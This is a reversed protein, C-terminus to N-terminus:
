RARRCRVMAVCCLLGLAVLLSGPEPIVGDVQVNDVWYLFTSNASSGGQFFQIYKLDAVDALGSALTVPGLDNTDNTFQISLDSIGAADLDAVVEVANWEDRTYGTTADSVTVLSDTSQNRYRTDYTGSNRSFYLLFAESDSSDFGRLGLSHPQSSRPVWLDLNVTAEGIIASTPNGAVDFENYFRLYQDGASAEGSPYNYGGSDKDQVLVGYTGTETVVDWSAGVNGPGIAPDADTEGGGYPTDDQFDDYFVVTAAAPKTAVVALITVTLGLVTRLNCSM